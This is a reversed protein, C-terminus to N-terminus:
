RENVLYVVSVDKLELVDVAFGAVFLVCDEEKGAEVAYGEDAEAVHGAVGDGEGHAGELRGVGARRGLVKAGSCDAADGDGHGGGCTEDM